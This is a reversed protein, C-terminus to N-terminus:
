LISLEPVDDIDLNFKEILLEKIAPFNHFKTRLDLGWFM